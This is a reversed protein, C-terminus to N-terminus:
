NLIRGIDTGDRFPVHMQRIVTNVSEATMVYLVFVSVSTLTVFPLHKSRFFILRDISITKM